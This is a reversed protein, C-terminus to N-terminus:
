PLPVKAHLPLNTITSSGAVFYSSAIGDHFAQQVSPSSEIETASDPPDLIDGDGTNDIRWNFWMFNKIKPYKTPLNNLMDSIWTAKDPTHYDAAGVSNLSIFKNPAVKLIDPYPAALLQDLTFTDGNFHFARLGTMDVYADGPYNAAYSSYKTEGAIYANPAWIWTINNAGEQVAIDHMYRWMAIYEAPTNKQVYNDAAISPATSWGWHRINMEPDLTLYFPFGYAGAKHFWTRINQEYPCGPYIDRLPVSNTFSEVGALTGRLRAREIMAKTNTNFDYAATLITSDGFQILSAKKGANSEFRDWTDTDYPASDWPALPDNPYHYNYTVKGEMYAGWYISSTGSPTASTLRPWDSNNTPDSAKALVGVYYTTGDTLGTITYSIATAPLDINTNNGQDNITTRYALQYGVAGAIANWAVKIQGDGPTLTLTPTALKTAGTKGYNSLLVSLDQINIISDNNIDASPNSAQAKSLGYNALLISLDTTNVTNDGNIDGPLVNPTAAFSKLFLVTIFPVFLILFLLFRRNNIKQTKIFKLM